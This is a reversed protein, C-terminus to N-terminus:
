TLHGWEEEERLVSVAPSKLDISSVLLISVLKKLSIELFHTMGTGLTSMGLPWSSLLSLVSCFHLLFSRFEKLIWITM